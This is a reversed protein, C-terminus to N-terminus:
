QTRLYERLQAIYRGFGTYDGRRLASEAQDLLELARKSLDPAGSPQALTPQPATTSVARASTGGFVANIAEELSPAMAVKSGDSILIRQLEPIPSGQASIFLPIMYIFGSDIPMVRPRGLNVDSGASRWLTLQQSITPDQEVMTEVQGPGAILQNRPLEYMLLEGYRASDNHVILLATMNRRQRAIFPVALVYNAEQEGPLRMM